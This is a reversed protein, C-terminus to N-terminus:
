SNSFGGDQDQHDASVQLSDILDSMHRGRQISEDYLFRLRPVSRMDLNGALQHRYHGAADNLTNLLQDHLAEGGLSTVYIKANKLDPSVDVASVTILGYRPDTAERQLTVALERQILDAVRRSRSYQKPM